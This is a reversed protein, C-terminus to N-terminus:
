SSGVSRRLLADPADEATTSRRCAPVLAVLSRPRGRRHRRSFPRRLEIRVLGDAILQVREQALPPRLVYKVLAERGAADQAGAVTAAHLSFGLEAVSLPAVVKVGIAGRLAIPARKRREPGAPAVGSVSASALAALAPEREAFEADAVALERLDHIIGRRALFRLIRVRVAQMLDAVQGSSLSPLAHFHLTGDNGPAFAGDLLIAHLHPNLRLDASTRQVVTVAGSQGGRVGHACLTRTYWRLLTDIFVRGVGGLLERDYALRARLEFPLTLVWQRLPVHQPLIYDLLNAASQAMRRGLCSPCFGRGGCSFAVLKQQQCGPCSFVAFGRALVGCALYGEIENRVFSPLPAAFGHEIAAYLTNLNERVVQHLTGLEPRRRAYARDSSGGAAASALDTSAPEFVTPTGLV